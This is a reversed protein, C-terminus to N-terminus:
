GIITFCDATVKDGDDYLVQRRQEAQGAMEAFAKVEVQSQVESMQASEIIPFHNQIVEEM